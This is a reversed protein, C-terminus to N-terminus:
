KSNPSIDYIEEPSLILLGKLVRDKLKEEEWKKADNYKPGETIYLDHGKIQYGDYGRWGVLSVYPNSLINEATKNFFYNMLWIGGDVIRITSVPVVNINNPGFTALAKSDASLLLDAVQSNLKM